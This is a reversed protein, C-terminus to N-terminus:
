RPCNHDAQMKEVRQRLGDGEVAYELVERLQSCNNAKRLLENAHSTCYRTLSSLLDTNNPNFHYGVKWIQCSRLADNRRRWNEGISLCKNPMDVMVNNRFFSRLYGNLAAREEQESMGSDEGLMLAKDRDLVTQFREAAEKVNARELFNMGEAFLGDVQRIQVQLRTADEHLHTRKMDSRVASLRNLADQTKGVYYALMAQQFDAQKLRDAFWKKVEAEKDPPRPGARGETPCRWLPARSDVQSRALLFHRYHENEPRWQNPSLKGAALTLTKGGPPYLEEETMGPCILNMYLECREFALRWSKVRSYEQCDKKARDQARRRADEYPEVARRHYERCEPNIKSFLELAKEPELDAAQRGQEFYSACESELAIRQKLANAERHLPDIDLARNCAEAAQRYDPMTRADMQLHQRCRRLAQELEAAENVVPPPLPALPPSAGGPPSSSLVGKLVVAVLVFVLLAGVGIVLMKKRRPVGEAGTEAEAEAEAAEAQEERRRSAALRREPRKALVDRRPKRAPQGEIQVRMEVNGVQVLDGDSLVTPKRIPESNVATGNASGLDTLWLSGDARVEVEAHRRSISTDDIQIESDSTRGIVSTGVLEFCKGDAPAGVCILQAQVTQRKALASAKKQPGVTEDNWDQSVAAKPNTNEDKAAPVNLHVVIECDGVYVQAKDSLCVPSSIREGDVFTGNASGLDEVWLEDNDIFFRAHRRSVGGEVLVVDNGELRGLTLQSVVEREEEAGDTRYIILSPM